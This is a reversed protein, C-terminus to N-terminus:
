LCLVQIVNLLDLYRLEGSAGFPGYSLPLASAQYTLPQSIMIRRDLWKIDRQYIPEYARSCIRLFQNSELVHSWRQRNRLSAHLRFCRAPQDAFGLPAM